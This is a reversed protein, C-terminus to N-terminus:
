RHTEAERHIHPRVHVHTSQLTPTAMLECIHTPLSLSIYAALTTVWLTAYCGSSQAHETSSTIPANEGDSLWSILLCGSGSSGRLESDRPIPPKLKLRSSCRLLLEALGVIQIMACGIWGCVKLLGHNSYNYAAMLLLSGHNSYNYLIRINKSFIDTTLGM